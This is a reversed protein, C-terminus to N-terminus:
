QNLYIKNGKFVRSKGIPIIENLVLSGNGVRRVTVTDGELTQKCSVNMNIFDYGAPTEIEVCLHSLRDTIGYSVFIRQRGALLCHFTDFLNYACFVGYRRTKITWKSRYKVSSIFHHHIIQSFIKLYSIMLKIKIM